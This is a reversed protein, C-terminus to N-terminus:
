GEALWPVNDRERVFFIERVNEIRFGVMFLEEAEETDESELESEVMEGGEVGPEVDLVSNKGEIASEVVLAEVLAEVLLMLGTEAIDM